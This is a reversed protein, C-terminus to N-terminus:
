TAAAARGAPALGSDSLESPPPSSPASSSAGDDDGEHVWVFLLVALCFLVGLWRQLTGQARVYLYWEECWTIWEMAFENTESVWVRFTVYGDRVLRWGSSVGYIIGTGDLFFFLLLGGAVM